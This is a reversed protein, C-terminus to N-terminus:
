LAYINFLEKVTKVAELNKTEAKIEKVVASDTSIKLNQKIIKELEILQEM